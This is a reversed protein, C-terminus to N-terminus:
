TFIDRFQLIKADIKLFNEQPPMGGSGRIELMCLMSPLHAECVECRLWVTILSARQRGLEFIGAGGRSQMKGESIKSTKPTELHLKCGFNSVQM